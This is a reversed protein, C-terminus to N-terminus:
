TSVPNRRLERVFEAELDGGKMMCVFGIQNGLHEFACETLRTEGSSRPAYCRGESFGGAITINEVKELCTARSGEKVTDSLGKSVFAFSITVRLKGGANQCILSYIYDHLHM